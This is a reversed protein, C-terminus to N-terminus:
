IERVYIINIQVQTFLLQFGNTQYVEVERILFSFMFKINSM